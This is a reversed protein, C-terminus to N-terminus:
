LPFMVDIKSSSLNRSTKCVTMMNERRFRAPTNNQLLGQPSSNENSQAGKINQETTHWRKVM